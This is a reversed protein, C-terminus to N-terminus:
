DCVIRRWPGAVRAAAEDSFRDPLLAVAAADAAALEADFLFTLRSLAWSGTSAAQRLAGAVEDQLGRWAGSAGAGEVALDVLRRREGADGFSADHYDIALRRIEDPTLTRARCLVGDVGSPWGTSIRM